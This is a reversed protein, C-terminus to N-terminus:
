KNAHQKEHNSSVHQGSPGGPNSDHPKEVRRGLNSTRGTSPRKDVDHSDEHSKEVTEPDTQILTSSNM